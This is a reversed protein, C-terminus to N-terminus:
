QTQDWVIIFQINFGCGVEMLVLLGTNLLKHVSRFLKLLVSVHVWINWPRFSSQGLEESVWRLSVSESSSM